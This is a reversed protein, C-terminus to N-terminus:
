ECLYIRSAFFLEVRNVPVNTDTHVDGVPFVFLFDVIAALAVEIITVRIGFYQWSLATSMLYTSVYETPSTLAFPIDGFGSRKDPILFFSVSLSLLLFVGYHRLVQSNLCTIALDSLSHCSLKLDSGVLCM